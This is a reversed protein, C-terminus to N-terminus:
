PEELRALRSHSRAPSKKPVRAPDTQNAWSAHLFGGFAVAEGAAFLLWPFANPTGGGALNRWDRCFAAVLILGGLVIAAWEARSVVFPRGTSEWVLVTWGAIIMSSAVAIPAAVPAAWPVPILFLVDWTELSAPWGLLLKLSLYYSVDWTGFALMFASFRQIFKRGAALGVGALLLLTAAERVMEIRMLRLAAPDAQRLRDFAIMPLEGDAAVGGPRGSLPDLIARLDVVVVAEVFGFGIGFLILGTLLM